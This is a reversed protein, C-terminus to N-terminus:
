RKRVLQPDDRGAQVIEFEASLLTATSADVTIHDNRKKFIAAMAASTLLQTGADAAAEVDPTVSSIVISWQPLIKRMELAVMAARFAADRDPGVLHAVIGGTALIELRAAHMDALQVLAAIESDGPPDVVDDPAGRSAVVLCHREEPALSVKTADNLQAHANRRPGEPIDGLAELAAVVAACDPYRANVDKALMREVVAVLAAPAEPCQAQFSPPDAFLIKTIVASANTGSYAPRTSACEYLLCGLGFVDAAPGIDKRGRAQEPSMYGPTGITAGTRTLARVADQMRSVGFDILMPRAADNSALLVNSPKVDRHLVDAAHATALASAIRVTMEVAERLTFGERVLRDAVSTGEVWSMVIYLAGDSTKGDAIHRVIAPHWLRALAESERHAREVEHADRAQLQKFAVTEGSQQDIARYVVGMGGAGIRELLRFRGGVLENV